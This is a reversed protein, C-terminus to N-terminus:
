IQPKETWQRSSETRISIQRLNLAITRYAIKEQVQFETWEIKLYPNQSTYLRYIQWYRKSM